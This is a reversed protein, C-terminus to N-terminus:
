LRLFEEISNLISKASLVIKDHKKKKKKIMSKYKKIKATIVCIKLGISSSTTGIPIGALSTLASISVYETFTFTVILSHDIYHLVGCVKKHNKSILKNQNIEEILYNRVEDIKKLRFEQNINKKWLHNYIKQYEEFNNVLGIAKLIEISKTCDNYSSVKVFCYCM